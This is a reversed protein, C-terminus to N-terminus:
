LTKLLLKLMNDLKYAVKKSAAKVEEHSLTKGKKVGTGYNTVTTLCAVKVGLQRLAIVEPVTSMGVVDAGLTKLMKIESATEYQPGRMCAYVAESIKINLKKAIGKAIKRIEADYPESMDLFGGGLSHAEDSSLPTLNTINIHDKILTLEGPKNKLSTSGSANTLIATKVGLLVLVRLLRVADDPTNGEYIHFRGRMIAIKKGEFEVIELVGKHGSVIAKPIGPISSYPVSYLVEAESFVGSLGSGLVVVFEPSYKGIENKLYTAAQGLKGPLDKVAIYRSHL